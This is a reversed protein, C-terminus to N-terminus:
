NMKLVIIDGKALHTKVEISNFQETTLDARAESGGKAMLHLSVKPEINLVLPQRLKNQITVM